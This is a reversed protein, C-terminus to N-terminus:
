DTCRQCNSIPKHCERELEGALYKKSLPPRQYPPYPEESVITIRGDFGNQRLTQVAQAAAQGGGIILFHEAM